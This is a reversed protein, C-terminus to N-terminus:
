FREIRKVREFLSKPITKLFNSFSAFIRIAEKRQSKPM